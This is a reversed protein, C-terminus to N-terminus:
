KGLVIEIECGACDKPCTFAASRLVIMKCHEMHLSTVVKEHNVSFYAVM